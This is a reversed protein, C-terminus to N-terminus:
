KGYDSKLLLLARRHYKDMVNFDNLLEMDSITHFLKGSIGRKEFDPAYKELGQGHKIIYRSFEVANLEYIYSKKSADQGVAFIENTEHNHLNLDNQIADVSTLGYELGLCNNLLFTDYAEHPFAHDDEFSLPNDVKDCVKLLGQTFLAFVVNQCKIFMYCGTRSLYPIILTFSIFARAAHTHTHTHTHTFTHSIISFQM